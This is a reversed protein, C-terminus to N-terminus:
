PRVVRFELCVSCIVGNCFGSCNSLCFLWTARALNAPFVEARGGTEGGTTGLAGTIGGTGLGGVFEFCGLIMDLVGDIGLGILM